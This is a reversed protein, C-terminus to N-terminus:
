EHFFFVFLNLNHSHWILMSFDVLNEEIEFLEWRISWTKNVDFDLLLFFFNGNNRKQILFYIHFLYRDLLWFKLWVQILFMRKTKKKQCFQIKFFFFEPFYYNVEKKLSNQENRYFIFIFGFKLFRILFFFVSSNNPIPYPTFFHSISSHM